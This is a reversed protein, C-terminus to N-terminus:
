RLGLGRTQTTWFALKDGGPALLGMQTALASFGPGADNGNLYIVLASLMYGRTLYDAEVIRGLLEGMAARESADEFNFARHGTRSAVM